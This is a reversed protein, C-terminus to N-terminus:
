GLGGAVIKVSVRRHAIRMAVQPQRLLAVDDGATSRRINGAEVLEASLFRPGRERCAPKEDVFGRTRPGARIDERAALRGPSGM